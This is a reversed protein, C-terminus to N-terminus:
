LTERALELRAAQVLVATAFERLGEKTRIRGSLTLDSLIKQVIPTNVPDIKGTDHCQM